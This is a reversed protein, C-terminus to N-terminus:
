KPQRALTMMPGFGLAEMRYATKAKSPAHGLLTGVADDVTDVIAVFRDFDSSSMGMKNVFLAQLVPRVPLVNTWFDGGFFVMPAFQEPHTLYYNQRADQFVEQLTGAAGPTYIIGNAALSLLVDERISNQFYKAVYTAFPSIPENGYYWTPVALSKAGNGIQTQALEYAPKAWAHLQRVIGMDIAGNAGVVKASVPLEPVSRLQQLAGAIQEDSAHAFLAGLHTAEMAGPGGGSAVFCGSNTLRRSIEVVHAYNPSDRSEDHGGMIAVTPRDVAELLRTMAQMISNDHLAEIMGAYPDTHAAGGNAIFFRYSRFDLTSAMSDPNTVDYGAMLEMSTYLEYRIPQFPVDLSRKTM